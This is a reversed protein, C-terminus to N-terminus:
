LGPKSSILIFLTLRYVTTFVLYPLVYSQIILGETIERIFQSRSPFHITGPTCVTPIACILFLMAERDFYIALTVYRHRYKIDTFGKSCYRPYPETWLGSTIWFEGCPLPRYNSGQSIPPHPMHSFGSRSLLFPSDSCLKFLTQHAM